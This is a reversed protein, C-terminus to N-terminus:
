CVFRVDTLHDEERHILFRFVEHHTGWGVDAFLLQAFQSNRDNAIGLFRGIWSALWNGEIKRSGTLVGLFSHLGPDSQQSTDVDASFGWQRKRIQLAIHTRQIKLVHSDKM